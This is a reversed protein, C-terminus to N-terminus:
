GLIEEIDREFEAFDKYWIAKMGVEKAATGYREIDDIFVCEEPAVGLKAAITEYMKPDPKVVGLECSLTVADFLAVQAPEFLEDLMNYAANSLLGIRYTPKLRAAMYSFLPTNTHRVAFAREVDTTSLNCLKAVAVVFDQENMFGSNVAVDLDHARQKLEDTTCYQERLTKWGDNTLVGFCDFIIARIPAPMTSM